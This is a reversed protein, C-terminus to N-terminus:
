YSRASIKKLKEEPDILHLLSLQSLEGTQDSLINYSQVADTYYGETQKMLRHHYRPELLRRAINSQGLEQFVFRTTVDESARYLEKIMERSNDTYTIENIDFVRVNKIM